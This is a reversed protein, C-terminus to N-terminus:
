VTGNSNKLEKVKFKSSDEVTEDTITISELKGRNRYAYDFPKCTINSVLGNLGRAGIKKEKAVSALRQYAEESFLLKCGVKDFNEEEYRTPSADSKKMIEVLNEVSLDDLHVIIPMRGMFEDTMMAKEVFDTVTPEYKENSDNKTGFGLTGRKVKYVDNFAGSAIVIMKSTNIPISSFSQSSESAGYTTGDLFKLLVNLVGKGSVDSKSESGKKDIEDFYVLAREAKEKDFNCDKLLEYLCQEINKGTYGPITIQTSDIELFPRDLYEALKKMILTKGIGTSGTVLIGSKKKRNLIMRAVEVVIRRVHEDQAVVTEEIKETIGDIDILEDLDQIEKKKETPNEKEKELQNPKTEKYSEREKSVKYNEDKLKLGILKIIENMAKKNTSLNKKLTKLEEKTYFHNNIAITLDNAEDEFSKEDESKLTGELAGNFLKILDDVNIRFVKKNGEEDFTGIYMYDEHEADYAAALSALIEEETSAGSVEVDSQYRNSLEELTMAGAVVYPSEGYSEDVSNVYLYEKGQDDIFSELEENHTGVLSCMFNYVYVGDTIYHRNLLSVIRRDYEDM